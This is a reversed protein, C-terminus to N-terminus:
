LLYRMMLLQPFIGIFAGIILEKYDHAKLHLRSSAIGGAIITTIAIISTLNKSFFLNLTVFFFLLGFIGIMHISAKFNMLVLCLCSINSFLIGLFFFYLVPFEYYDIIHKLIVVLLIGNLILPYIREQTTKLSISQVQGLIKLITYLLIPIVFTLIFIPILLASASKLDIYKPTINLFVIVGTCPM